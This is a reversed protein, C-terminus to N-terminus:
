MVTGALTELCLSEAVSDKFDPFLTFLMFEDVPQYGKRQKDYELKTPRYYHQKFKLKKNRRGWGVYHSGEFEFSVWVKDHNDEKCWGIFHFNM